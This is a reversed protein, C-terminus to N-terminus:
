PAEPLYADLATVILLTRSPSRMEETLYDLVKVNRESLRITHRVTPEDAALVRREASAPRGFLSARPAEEDRGTAKAILAALQDYTSEIADMLITPFSKRTSEQHARLRADISEPLLVGVGKSAPEEVPSVVSQPTRVPSPASGRTPASKRRQKVAPKEDVGEAVGTDPADDPEGAASAPEAEVETAIDAAAAAVAEGAEEAVGAPASVVTLVPPAVEAETVVPEPAETPILASLKNQLSVRPM